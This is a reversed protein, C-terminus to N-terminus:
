AYDKQVPQRCLFIYLKAHPIVYGPMSTSYTTNCLFLIQKNAQTFIDLTYVFIWNHTEFKFYTTTETSSVDTQAGVLEPRLFYMVDRKVSYFAM